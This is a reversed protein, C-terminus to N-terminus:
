GLDITKKKKLFDIERQMIVIKQDQEQNKAILDKITNECKTNCTQLVQVQGSITTVNKDTVQCGSQLTKLQTNLTDVTKNTIQCGTQLTQVQTTLGTITRDTTQCANQLTQMQTTLGNVNTDTNQVKSTLGSVTKDTTQVQTTLGSVTKDIIQTQTTLGNVTKDIIQTQATLGNVTKDTTQVQTTLNNITTNSNLVNTNLIDIQSTLNNVAARLRQIEQVCLTIMARDNIGKPLMNLDYSAAQPFTTAIEEAIFGIDPKDTTKWKYSVPRLNDIITPSLSLDQIDYKYRNSSVSTFIQGNAGIRLPFDQNTGGIPSNLYYLGRVNNTITDSPGIDITYTQNGQSNTNINDNRFGFVASNDHTANAYSGSALSCQGAAVNNLGGLCSSWSGSSTNNEGSAIFSAYGSAVQTVSARPSQFDVSFCGRCNGGELGNDVISSNPIRRSLFGKGPTVLSISVDTQNLNPSLIDNTMNIDNCGTCSSLFNDFYTAGPGSPGTPGVLSDGIPGIPGTPGPIRVGIV